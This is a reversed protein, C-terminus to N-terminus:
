LSLDSCAKKKRKGAASYVFFEQGFEDAAIERAAYGSTYLHEIMAIINPSKARQLATCIQLRSLPTEANLLISYIENCLAQKTMRPRKM